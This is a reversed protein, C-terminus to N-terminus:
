LLLLLSFCGLPQISKIPVTCWFTFTIKLLLETIIWMYWISEAPIALWLCPNLKCGDWHKNKSLDKCKRLSSTIRCFCFHNQNIKYTHVRLNGTATLVYFDGGVMYITTYMISTSSTCLLFCVTFLYNLVLNFSAFLISALQVSTM